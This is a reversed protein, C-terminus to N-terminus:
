VMWGERDLGRYQVAEAFHEIKIDETQALEAITRSVKLISYSQQQADYIIYRAKSGTFALVFFAPINYGANKLIIRM